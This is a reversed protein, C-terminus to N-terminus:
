GEWMNQRDLAALEEELVQQLGGQAVPTKGAGSAPGDALRRRLREAKPLAAALDELKGRVVLGQRSLEVALELQHNDMLEANPVVIMPAGVRMGDLISGSGAHSIVVGSHADAMEDMLGAPEFDFGTLLIPPNPHAALYAALMSPGPESGHQIHLHTYDLSALTAIFPESLVCSLLAPFTATAGITVFCIKDNCPRKGKGSDIM